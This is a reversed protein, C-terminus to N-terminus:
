PLEFQLSSSLITKDAKGDNLPLELGAQILQFGPNALRINIHGEADTVGRPKGFYAVTVNPAPLGLHFARLRIKDGVKLTFPNDIAVLELSQTMPRTMGISWRDMRKIAEISLWSEIVAGADTKPLNKTGYPTKSWYGSSVQFWSAACTGRLTAPYAREFRAKSVQGAADVCVAERVHDPLYPMIREGAHASRAHGYQLTHLEADRDIWLDHAVAIGPLLMILALWLMQSRLVAWSRFARMSIGRQRLIFYTYFIM